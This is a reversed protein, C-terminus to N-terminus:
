RRSPDAQQHGAPGGKVDMRHGQEPRTGDLLQRTARSDVVDVGAAEAHQDLEGAALRM